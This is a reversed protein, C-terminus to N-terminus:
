RASSVALHRLPPNNSLKKGRQWDFRHLRRNISVGAVTIGFAAAYKEVQAMRIATDLGFVDAIFDLYQMGTLSEFLDPTDSIYALRQKAELPYAAVAIGDVMIGGSDAPHIGVVAKLTTTKGAGNQGVFAYLDGPLIHLCLDTVGKDTGAYHKTLHDIKLM